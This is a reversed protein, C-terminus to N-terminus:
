GPYNPISDVAAHVWLVDDFLVFPKNLSILFQKMARGIMAIFNPWISCFHSDSVCKELATVDSLLYM